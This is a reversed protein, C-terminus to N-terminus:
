LEEGKWRDSSNMDIEMSRNSTIIRKTSTKSSIDRISDKITLRLLPITEKIEITAVALNSVNNVEDRLRAYITTMGTPYDAFNILGVFSDGREQNFIYDHRINNSDLIYINQYDSLNENAQVTIRNIINRTTYKPAIIEIIPPTTDLEIVVFSSM